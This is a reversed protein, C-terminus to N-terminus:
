AALVFDSAFKQHADGNKDTQTSALFVSVPVYLTRNPTIAPWQNAERHGPMGLDAVSSDVCGFRFDSAFEQHADGNEDTLTSALFVPIPEGQAHHQGFTAGLRCNSNSSRAPVDIRLVVAKPDFIM